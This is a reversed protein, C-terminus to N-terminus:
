LMHLQRVDNGAYWALVNDLRCFKVLKHRMATAPYCPGFTDGIVLLQPALKGEGISEAFAIMHDLKGDHSSDVHAFWLKHLPHGRIAILNAVTSALSDCDDSWPQNNMVHRHYSLWRDNDRPDKRYTYNTRAGNDIRIITEANLQMPKVADM